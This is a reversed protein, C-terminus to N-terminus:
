FIRFKFIIISYEKLINIFYEKEENIQTYTPLNHLNRAHFRIKMAINRARILLLFETYTYRRRLIPITLQKPTSYFKQLLILPQLVLKPFEPMFILHLPLGVSLYGSLQLFVSARYM